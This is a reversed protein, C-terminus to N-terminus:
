IYDWKGMTFQVSFCRGSINIIEAAGVSDGFCKIDNLVNINAIASLLTIVLISDIYTCNNCRLRIVTICELLFIQQQQNTDGNNWLCYSYASWRYSCINSYRYSVVLVFFMTTTDIM